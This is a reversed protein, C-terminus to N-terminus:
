SVTRATDRWKVVEEELSAIINMAKKQKSENEELIALSM